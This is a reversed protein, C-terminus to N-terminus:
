RASKASLIWVVGRLREGVGRANQTLTLSLILIIHPTVDYDRDKLMASYTNTRWCMCVVSRNDTTNRPEPSDRIAEMYRSCPRVDTMTITFGAFDVTPASFVFKEPNLIIGNRGCIDLWQAAHFYSGEITDSWLLTDDVCKTKDGFYAVNEDYRRAYGITTRTYLSATTSTGHTSYPIANGTLYADRRTSRTNLTITERFEHLRLHTEAQWEKERRNGHPSM